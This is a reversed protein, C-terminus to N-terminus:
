NNVINDQNWSYLIRGKSKPFYHPELLVLLISPASATWTDWLAINIDLISRAVIANNHLCVVSLERVRWGGSGLHRWRDLLPIDNTGWEPLLLGLRFSQRWRCRSLAERHNALWSERPALCIGQRLSLRKDTDMYFAPKDLNWLCILTAIEILHREVAILFRYLVENYINRYNLLRPSTHHCNQVAIYGPEHIM